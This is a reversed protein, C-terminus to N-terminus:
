NRNKRTRKKRHHRAPGSDSRSRSGGQVKDAKRRQSVKEPRMSERAPGRSPQERRRPRGGSRGGDRVPLLNMQRRDVNVSTILVRIRDGLRFVRRSQTGTMTRGASDFEWYEDSMESVPILGEAPIELGQCFMGFSEVGTIVAEMEEGVKPEMFRLLRVKIVEREAREARRETRSCHKGLEFLEESAEGPRVGERIIQDILRHITLDPYRRIPSTFHCYDEEALAFHGSDEPSYIAQKMSRLLAMNVARQEPRGEVRRILSQLEFRSQPQALHLDLGQCFQQFGRIKLEDPTEHVRRLFPIGRTTLYQAVAINAALMFEEIIQHSEDHQREHAGCVFGEKDFDIQIEPIGMELSGQDRRRARLLMALEYMQELLQRVEPTCADAARSGKVIPLVQEYAFRQTVRIVSNAMRTGLVMGVEDFDIFVSRTWRLEGQQLSALGNSLLEPLMPIVYDPLYVSTGRERAEHDLPGGVPVLSAVDAIHVGLHWIGDATRNLSIADDFDRADAPDITVITEDTLDERDAPIEEPFQEARLRAEKLVGEPFEHPIGFGYIVSLNDIGPDGHRGLVKSVVAEGAKKATPFRLIEVVVRDDVQPGRAGTDAVHLPESFQDGDIRVYGRGGIETWTGVFVTSARELIRDIVGCRQGRARRRATLTVLVEDGSQADRLDRAAVYVDGGRLEAVKESPIVWGAGSPLRRVVGRVTGLLGRPRLRGHRDERIRGQEILEEVAAGLLPLQDGRVRLVAALQQLTMPHYEVALLTRLVRKKLNREESSSM